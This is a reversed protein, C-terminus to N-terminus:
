PAPASVDGFGSDLEIEPLNRLSGVVSLWYPLSGVFLGAAAILITGRLGITAGMLGGLMTGLPIAGLILLRSSAAVRARLDDPTVAQRVSLQNITHLAIGFGNLFLMATFAALALSAPAVALVVMGPWFCAVAFRMAPGIGLRRSIRSTLLAGVIFGSNGLAFGLAIRDPAVAAERVLFLVVVVMAISRSLNNTMATVTIARLHPERILYAAGALIEDRLRTRTEGVPAPRRDVTPELGPSTALLVGSALFSAADIALAVPATAVQLLAGAVGPGLVQASSRSMELRGNAAVLHDRGVLRPLYSALAVDFVTGLAANIALVVILHPLTLVGIVWALPVSMLVVGRALDAAGIIARRTRLRDIWVGAPLGLLVIPLFQAGGLAGLETPGAGLVLIATLPVAVVSVADGFKSISEAAWLRRFDPNKSLNTPQAVGAVALTSRM